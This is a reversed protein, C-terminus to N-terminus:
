GLEIYGEEGLLGSKGRLLKGSLELCHQSARRHFVYPIDPYLLSGRHELPATVEGYGLPHICHPKGVGGIECPAELFFEPTGWGLELFSM